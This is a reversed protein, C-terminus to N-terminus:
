KLWFISWFWRLGKCFGRVVGRNIYLFLKEYLIRYQLPNYWTKRAVEMLKQIRVNTYMWKLPSAIFLKTNCSNINKSRWTMLKEGGRRRRKRLSKFRRFIWILFNGSRKWRWRSGFGNWGRGDCLKKSVRATKWQFNRTFTWSFQPSLLTQSSSALSSFSEAHMKLWFKEISLNLLCSADRNFYYKAM